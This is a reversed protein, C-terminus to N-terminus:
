RRSVVRLWPTIQQVRGGHSQVALALAADPDHLDFAGTVTANALQADTIVIRARGYRQLGHAIDALPMDRVTWRGRQWDATGNPVADRTGPEAADAVQLREGPQLHAVCAKPVCPHQVRVSGELLSVATGHLRSVEFRTGTVVVAVEGSHVIFPRATDHRVQFLARGALLRVGRTSATDDFAIASGTDLVVTSGDDLTVSRIEGAATQVDAQWRLWLSPLLLVPACAVVAAALLRWRRRPRRRSSGAGPTHATFPTAPAAHEQSPEATGVTDAGHTRAWGRQVQRWAIAHAESQGRWQEIEGYLADEAQADAGVERLRLWWQAAELLLPDDAEVLTRTVPM